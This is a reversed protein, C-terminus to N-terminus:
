NFHLQGDDEGSSKEKDEAKAEILALQKEAAKVVNARSETRIIKKLLRKDYVKEMMALMEKEPNEKIDAKGGDIITLIGKEIRYAVTPLNKIEELEQFTCENIGPLIRVFGGKALGCTLINNGNYQVLAM